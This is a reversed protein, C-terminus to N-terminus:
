RNLWAAVLFLIGGVWFVSGSQSLEIGLWGLMPGIASGLDTSTAMAAYARHGSQAARSEIALRAIMAGTFFVVIMLIMVTTTDFMAVALLSIGSVTFGIWQAKKFGIRDLVVGTAPLGAFNIISRISLLMGTLATVGISITGINVTDGYRERLMFGLTSMILGSSVFSIIFGQISLPFRSNGSEFRDRVSPILRFKESDSTDNEEFNKATSDASIRRMRGSQSFSSRTHKRAVFAAPLAALSLVAAMLFARQYGGWDYFWGAAFTGAVFGLNVLAMYIGMSRGRSGSEASNNTTMVGTHRIISWCAGWVIRLLLLVSFSPAMAYGAAMLSGVTLALPFASGTSSRKILRQAIQNTVLRIWRNVSLLLGVQIASFGLAAHQAPFIVYMAMDGFLSFAVALGTAGVVLDPQSKPKM